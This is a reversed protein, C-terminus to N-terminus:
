LGIICAPPATLISCIHLDLVRHLYQLYPLRFSGQFTWNWCVAQSLTYNRRTRPQSMCLNLLVPFRLDSSTRLNHKVQYLPRYLKSTSGLSYHLACVFNSKQRYSQQFFIQNHHHCKRHAQLDCKIKFVSPKM